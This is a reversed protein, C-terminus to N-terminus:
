IVHFMYLVFGPTRPNGIWLFTIKWCSFSLLSNNESSSKHRVNPTKESPVKEESSIISIKRTFIFLPRCHSYIVINGCSAFRDIRTSTLPKKPRWSRFSQGYLDPERRVFNLLSKYSYKSHQFHSLWTRPALSLTSKFFFCKKLPAIASYGGFSLANGNKFPVRVSRPAWYYIGSNNPSSAPLNCSTASVLNQELFM